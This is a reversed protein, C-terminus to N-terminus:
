SASEPTFEGCLCTGLFGTREAFDSCNSLCFQMKVYAMDPTIDRGDIVGNDVLIKGSAYTGLKIGGEPCQSVAVVPVERARARALAARMQPTDPATGSGYCRLILGDCEEVAHGLLETYPGPAISFFGVKRRSVGKLTPHDAERIPPAASESAAFGDLASSHFKRVRAGHMLKGAFQVWVGPPASKVAQMADTLNRWGDSGDVTLPLMAGTVVVPKTLGPLAMCLAASTYALTDTGHTVVIGDSVNTAKFVSEAIRNWDNPTAHASDILPDLTTIDLSNTIQGSALLNQAATEVIGRQPAFGDDTKSM